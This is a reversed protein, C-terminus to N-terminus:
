PGRWYLEQHRKESRLYAYCGNEAPAGGPGRQPLKRHERLGRTPHHPSLPCGTVGGWTEEM